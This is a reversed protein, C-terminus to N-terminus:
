AGDATSPSFDRLRRETAWRWRLAQERALAVEERQVAARIVQFHKELVRARYMRLYIPRLAEHLHVAVDEGFSDAASRFFQPARRYDLDASCCHAALKELFATAFGLARALEDAHSHSGAATRAQASAPGLALLALPSVFFSRRKM